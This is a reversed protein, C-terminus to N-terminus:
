NLQVDEDSSGELKGADLAAQKYDLGEAQLKGMRPQLNTQLGKTLCTVMWHSAVTRSVKLLKLSRGLSPSVGAGRKCPKSCLISQM